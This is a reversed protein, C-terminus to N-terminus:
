EETEPLSQIFEEKEKPIESTKGHFFYEEELYSKDRIWTRVVPRHRIKENDLRVLGLKEYWKLPQIYYVGDGIKERWVDTYKTGRHDYTVKMWPGPHINQDTVHRFWYKRGYVECTGYFLTGDWKMYPRINSVDKDRAVWHSEAM